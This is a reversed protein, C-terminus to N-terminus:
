NKQINAKYLINQAKKIEKDTIKGDKNSDVANYLYKYKEPFVCFKSNENFVTNALIVFIGTLLLSLILDRTAGFAILFILIERTITNRIFEEQSKSLDIVVYKSFLNLAMMGLGALLKSNNLSHYNNYLIKQFTNKKPKVM